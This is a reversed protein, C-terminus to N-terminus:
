EYQAKLREANEAMETVVVDVTLDGLIAKQLEGWAATQWEQFWPTFRYPQPVAYKDQESLVEPDGWEEISAAVEPDKFLPQQVFGLGYEVAWKKAVYYEGNADRGGLFQVLQWANLKQKSNSTIGYFRIYARTGSRVEGNGPVLAMKMNGAEQSSEPDNLTKLNYDTLLAFTRTGAAMARVVEHDTSSLSARDIVGENNMGDIVWNLADRFASDPAAFVPEMDDNFLTGGHAFAINELQYMIHQSKNLQLVIPYDSIGAEKITRAQEVMESWTEPPADIGAEELHRANYALVNRGAYYPLGYLEGKYSMLNRASEPIDERYQELGPYDTIPELWGASVWEALYSDRVYVVDFETGAVFSSVLKDRYQNSPFNYYDDVELGSQEEFVELNENVVDVEYSWGTLKLPEDEQGSGAEGQGGAFVTPALIALAMLVALVFRLSKM